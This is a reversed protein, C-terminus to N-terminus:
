VYFLKNTFARVPAQLMKISMLKSLATSIMKQESKYYLYLLAPKQPKAYRVGVACTAMSGSFIQRSQCRYLGAVPSAFFDPHLFSFVGKQV